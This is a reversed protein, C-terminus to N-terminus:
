GGWSTRPAVFVLLVRPKNTLRRAIDRQARISWQLGRCFHSIGASIEAEGEWRGRDDEFREKFSDKVSSERRHDENRKVGPM